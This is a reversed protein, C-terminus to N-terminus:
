LDKNITAFLEILEHTYLRSPKWTVMQTCIHKLIPDNRGLGEIMVQAITNAIIKNDYKLILQKSFCPHRTIMEYLVCGLSWVDLLCVEKIDSFTTKHYLEPARYGVSCDRHNKPIEFSSNGFDVYKILSRSPDVVINQPKIDLHACKIQHIHDLGDLLQKTLHKILYKNPNQNESNYIWEYLNVPLREMIFGVMPGSKFEGDGILQIIGPKNKLARLIDLENKFEKLRCDFFDTSEPGLIQNFLELKEEENYYKSYCYNKEITSLDRLTGDSMEVFMNICKIAKTLDKEPVLISGSVGRDLLIYKEGEM